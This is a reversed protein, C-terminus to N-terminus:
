RACEEVGEVGKSELKYYRKLLQAERVGFKDFTRIDLNRKFKLKYDARFMMNKM